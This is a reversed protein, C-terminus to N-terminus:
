RIRMRPGWGRQETNVSSVCRWRFARPDRKGQSGRDLEAPTAAGKPALDQQLGLGLQPGGLGPAAVTRQGWNTVRTQGVHAM